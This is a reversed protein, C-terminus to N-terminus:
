RNGPEKGKIAIIREKIQYVLGRPKLMEDLVMELPRDKVHLSVLMDPKIYQDNYIIFYGTQTEIAELVKPIPQQKVNLTVTQSLSAASLHLCTIALLLSTLKMVRFLQNVGNRTKEGCLPHIVYNIM